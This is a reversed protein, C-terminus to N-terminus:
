SDPEDKKRYFRLRFIGDSTVEGCEPCRFVTYKGFKTRRKYDHFLQGLQGCFPCIIRIRDGCLAFVFVFLSVFLAAFAVGGAVHLYPAAESWSHALIQSAVILAGVVFVGLVIRVYTRLSITM